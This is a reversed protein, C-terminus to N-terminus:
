SGAGLFLLWRPRIAQHGLQFARRLFRALTDTRLELGCLPRRPCLTARTPGVQPARPAPHSAPRAGEGVGASGVRAAPGRRAVRPLSPAALGRCGPHLRVGRCPRPALARPRRRPGRGPLLSVPGRGGGGGGPIATRAEQRPGSGAQLTDPGRGGSRLGSAEKGPCRGERAQEGRSRTGNWGRVGGARRM